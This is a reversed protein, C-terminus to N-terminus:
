GREFWLGRNSLHFKENAITLSIFSRGDQSREFNRTLNIPFTSLWHASLIGRKSTYVANNAWSRWSGRDVNLRDEGIDIDRLNPLYTVITLYIIVRVLASSFLAISVGLM